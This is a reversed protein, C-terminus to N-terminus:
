RGSAPMTSRALSFGAEFLFELFGLGVDFPQFFEEGAVEGVFGGGREDLLFAVFQCAVLLGVASFILACNFYCRGRQRRIGRGSQKGQVFTFPRV